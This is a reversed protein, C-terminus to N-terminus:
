YTLNYGYRVNKKASDDITFFTARDTAVVNWIGRTVDKESEVMVTRRRGIFFRSRNFCLLGTTADSSQVYLGSTALNKDMFESVVLPANGVKAVEGSHIAAQPGYKDVTVVEVWGLIKSLYYEPSTVYVCNGGLGMPSDLGARLALAGAYTQVGNQDVTASVDYARARLGIAWRRHDESGGLGSAGWRSRINWSALADQHTAATDGNVLADEEGDVLAEVCQRSMLPLALIVSDETADESMIARVARSVATPSRQATTITSTTYQGPNDTTAQGKLYPRLGLALFPLLINKDTMPMEQFLAALRREARFYEYLVSSMTDPIWEAGAGAADTFIRRLEPNPCRALHRLIQRDTKPSHSGKRSKGTFARVMSRQSVLRKLKTHWEDANESSDLLGEEWGGNDDFESFLRVPPAKVVIGDSRRYQNDQALGGAADRLVYDGLADSDGQHAQSQALRAEAVEQQSARLAAKLDDVATAFQAIKGNQAENARKLDAIVKAVGAATKLDDTDM